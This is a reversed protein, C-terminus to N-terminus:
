EEYFQRDNIKKSVFIEKYGLKKANEWNEVANDVAGKKFEIDGLLNYLSGDHPNEKLLEQLTNKAEDYKEQRFLVFSYTFNYHPNKPDKALIGKILKAAYDIEINERSLALALNNILYVDQPNEKIIKEYTAKGNKYDKKGFYAEAIISYLDEQVENDLAYILGTEAIEIAADHKNQKLLALSNFYYFDTNSPFLELAISSYKALSDYNQNQYELYVIRSITEKNNPNSALSKIYYASAKQHDRKSDYINGLLLNFFGDEPHADSALLALDLALKDFIIPNDIYNDLMFYRKYTVDVEPDKFVNLLISRGKDSKFQKLYYEALLLSVAANNPQKQHLEELLTLMKQTQNRKTYIDHLAFLARHDEPFEEISQMLTKEALDPKKMTMYLSYKFEYINPDPQSLREIDNLTNLAKTHQGAGVYSSYLNHLYELNNPEEKVLTQFHQIAKTYNELAYYKAGLLRIYWANTPDIANAKELADLYLQEEKNEYLKSLLFYAADDKPNVQLYKDIRKKAKDFDHVLYYHVAEHFVQKDQPSVPQTSVTTTKKATTKTTGCGALLLGLGLIYVFNKM